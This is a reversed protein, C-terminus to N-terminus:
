GISPAIGQGGRSVGPELRVAQRPFVSRQDLRNQCARPIVHRGRVKPTGSVGDDLRGLSGGSFRGFEFKEEGFGDGVDQGHGGAIDVPTGPKHIVSEIRDEANRQDLLEVRREAEIQARGHHEIVWRDGIEARMQRCGDLRFRLQQRGSRRIVVPADRDNAEGRAVGPGAIERCEAIQQAFPTGTDGFHRGRAPPGVWSRVALRVWEKEPATEHFVGLPEIWESQTDGALFRFQGVRLVPHEQHLGPVRQLIRAVAFGCQVAHAAPHEHARMAPVVRMPHHLGADFRLGEREHAVGGRDQCSADRVHQVEFARRHRHIRRARRRQHRHMQGAAAQQVILAVHCQGAAHENSSGFSKVDGGAGGAHQRRGTTARSEVGGGIPENRALAGADNHKFAQIARQRVGIMDVRHDHRRADILIAAGVADRRGTRFALCRQDAFGVASVCDVRVGDPVHFRVAGAGRQAVRELDFAQRAGPGAPGHRAAHGGDSRHLGIDAMGRMGGADASEDLRHQRHPIRLNIGRQM